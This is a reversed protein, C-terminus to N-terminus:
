GPFTFEVARSIMRSQSFRMIQVPISSAPSTGKWSTITWEVTGYSPEDCSTCEFTGAWTGEFPNDAADSDAHSTSAGAGLILAAALLVAVSALLRAHTM